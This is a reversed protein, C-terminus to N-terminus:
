IPLGAFSNERPAKSAAERKDEETEFDGLMIRKLADSGIMNEETAVHNKYDELFVVMMAEAVMEFTDTFANAVVYALCVSFLVVAAFQPVEIEKPQLWLYGILGTLAMVLVKIMMCLLYAIGNVMAVYTGHSAFLGLVRCASSCFGHGWIAIEVYAHKNIMKVCSECCALCCQLCKILMRTVCSEEQAEKTKSNIYEVIARLTQVVAVIFAGFAISGFHYRFLRWISKTLNGQDKQGQLYWLVTVSSIVFQQMAAFIGLVWFLGFVMYWAAVKTDQSYEYTIHNDDNAKADSVTAVYIIIYVWLIIWAIDVIITVAPIVFTTPMDFLAKAALKFIAIAAKIRKRMACACCTFILLAIGAIGTCVLLIYLNNKDEDLREEEPTDVYVKQYSDKSVSGLYGTVAVLAVFTLFVITYIVVGGM